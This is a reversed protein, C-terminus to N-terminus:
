SGGPDFTWGNLSAYVAAVVATVMHVRSVAPAGPRTFPCKFITVREGGTYWMGCPAPVDM